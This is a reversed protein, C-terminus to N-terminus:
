GLPRTEGKNLQRAHHLPGDKEQRAPQKELPERKRLELGAEGPLAWRVRASALAGALELTVTAAIPLIEECEVRCGELSLDVVTVAVSRGSPLVVCGDFRVPEREDRDIWGPM